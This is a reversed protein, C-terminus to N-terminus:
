SCEPPAGVALWKQAGDRLFSPAESAKGFLAARRQSKLPGM